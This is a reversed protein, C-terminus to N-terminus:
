YEPRFCEMSLPAQEAVTWTTVFLQDHGLLVQTYTHRTLYLPIGMAVMRLFPIKTNKHLM